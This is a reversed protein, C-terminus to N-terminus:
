EVFHWCVGAIDIINIEKGYPQVILQGVRIGFKEVLKKEELHKQFETIDKVRVILMLNEAFKKDDYKQLVFKCADKEFGAVDGQDWTNEFGLEKFLLKSKEFDSGSPVFTEISLFTM